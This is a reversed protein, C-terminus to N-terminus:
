LQHIYEHHNSMITNDSQSLTYVGLNSCQDSIREINVLIDLYSLGTLTSCRGDRVRKIHNARLTAVLDDVVEEVPEIRRAAHMDLATFSECAYGLIEDLADRMVRLEHKAMDSLENGKDRLEQANETLNVAYDGIREFESFCQIYYNLLDNGYGMKVHPSLKILYNDVRDALLDISDENENIVDIRHQDYNQLVDMASLVGERALRAMTGIADSAGALALAPSTFFKEDLRELEREVSTGLKEDDKVIVRSLKEFQGCVPLLVIASFLRFVTHVNAIGGSTLTKDWLADLVGAGRLIMIAAIVLLSGCINFIIHVMGTRKADAKSGISCVIATTVCDGINVGIIIAYVSSFTLAGTTSLAQLIGITASSSQLLFAVGTGALFGLVPTDSLGVFMRAFSESSSLPSVAATMNLLGTFLIGFGMAIQGIVGSHKTKVTMIMLIGIIAALPALTSPKFLEVWSAGEGGNLDLLRIIQGTVTTGVNAGLVVGLSQHLTIVGAGVLGSTLVITATSSQIIATVVLGLFFGVVPNNTVKEMATKLAGSSSEKLGNGMLRMGYLFLALGGFLSIVNFITM